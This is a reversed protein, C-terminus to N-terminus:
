NEEKRYIIEYDIEGGSECYRQFDCWDCLKSQNKPFDKAEILRKSNTLFDIVKNANYYVSVFEIQKQGLDKIIRKRLEELTETKKQRLQCKPVFMFYMNRIRKSPNLKEFYYKYLHLQESDMYNKVNNSYKFDYLDYYNINNPEDVDKNHFDIIKYTHKLPVLLDIYGIFDENEIKIEHEGTPLLEKIKPLWHLLKITESIHDDNIIPYANYYEEIAAQTDHEIGTHLAHGLILPSQPDDNSLTKLKDIYRLKYQYNCNNFCSVRSHSLRM